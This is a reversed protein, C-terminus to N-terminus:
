IFRPQDIRKGHRVFPAQQCFLAVKKSPKQDYSLQSRHDGATPYLKSSPQPIYIEGHVQRISESMRRALDSLTARDVPDRVEDATYGWPYLVLQSFSHYTILGAFKQAAVLNRV